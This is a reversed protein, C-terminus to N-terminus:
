MKKLSLVKGEGPEKTWLGGPQPDLKTTHGRKATLVLKGNLIQWASPDFVVIGQDRCAPALQARFGGSVRTSDDLTVMCGTDRGGERLVSYRGAIDGPRVVVGRGPAVRTTAAVQKLGRAPAAARGDGPAAVHPGAETLRYSEGHPGTAVFGDSDAAVFDLVPTGGSDALDLRDAAPLTWSDIGSLIPLARRCGAPMVVTYPDGNPDLRLTIRCERPGGSLTLDWQGAASQPTAVLAAAPAAAFLAAASGLALGSLWGRGSQDARAKHM